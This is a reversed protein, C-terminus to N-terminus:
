DIHFVPADASVIGSFYGEVRVSPEEAGLTRCGALATRKYFIRVVVRAKLNVTILNRFGFFSQLGNTVRKRIPSSRNVSAALPALVLSCAYTDNGNSNLHSWAKGSAISGRRRARFKINLPASGRGSSADM